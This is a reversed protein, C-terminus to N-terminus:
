EYDEEEMLIDTSLEKLRPVKHIEYQIYEERNLYGVFFNYEDTKWDNLKRTSDTFRWDGISKILDIKGQVFRLMTIYNYSSAIAENKLVTYKPSHHTETLFYLYDLANNENM